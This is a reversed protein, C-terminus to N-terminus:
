NSIIPVVTTLSKASNELIETDSVTVKIEVALPLINAQYTNQKTENIGWTDKWNFGDFYRLNFTKVFPAIEQKNNNVEKVLGEQPTLPDNDVYYSVEKLGSLNTGTDPMFTTFTIKSTSNGSNNVITGLFKIKKNAPSAFACRLDRSIVQWSQRLNQNFYSEKEIKQYAKLGISYSAYVTTIVIVLITMGVLLEILTFGTQKNKM